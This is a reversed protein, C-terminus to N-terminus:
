IIGGLGLLILILLEARKMDIVSSIFHRFNVDSLLASNLKWVSGRKNSFGNLSLNLDVFDHDSFTCPLVKNPFVSKFLGSSILFRDLRSAQSYDANSWTFSTGRRNKKHWIDILSFDSLLTHLHKKDPLSSNAFHLRDLVNGVCNFDRAVILDGQSIFYNHLNEFVTKRESVTNPAYVNVVNFSRSALIVM